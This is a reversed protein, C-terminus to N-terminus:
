DKRNLFEVLADVSEFILGKNPDNKSEELMKAQHAKVKARIEQFRKEDM